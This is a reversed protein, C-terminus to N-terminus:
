GQNRIASVEVFALMQPAKECHRNPHGEYQKQNQLCTIRAIHRSLFRLFPPLVLLLSAQTQQLLFPQLHSLYLLLLLLFLPLAFFVIFYQQSPRTMPPPALVSQQLLLLQLLLLTLCILLLLLLLLLLCYWCRNRTIILLHAAAVIAGIPVGGVIVLLSAPSSPPCPRRGGRIIPALPTLHFLGETSVMTLMAIAADEGKVVVTVEESRADPLPIM